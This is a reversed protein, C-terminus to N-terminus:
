AFLDKQLHADGKPLKVVFGSTDKKADGKASLGVIINLSKSSIINLQELDLFRLDNLDGNIVPYGLYTEPLEKGAFVIAVNAIKLNNLTDVTNDEETRSLTLHYNGHKNNSVYTLMKTYDYFQIEPFDKSMNILKGWNLDSTGNLRVAPLVKLKKCKRSFARLEEELQALFAKRDSLFWDTKRIRADQVQKQKGRGATYLCAAACGDTAKPCINKGSTSQKHPALYMIATLYEGGADSKVTKANSGIGLLKM